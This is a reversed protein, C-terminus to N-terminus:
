KLFHSKYCIVATGVDEEIFEIPHSWFQDCMTKQCYQHRLDYVISPEVLEFMTAITKDIESQALFAYVSSGGALEKYFYHLVCKKTSPTAM